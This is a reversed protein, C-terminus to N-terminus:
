KVGFYVTSFLRNFERFIRENFSIDIYRKHWELANDMYFVSYNSMDRMRYKSQPNLERYHGISLDLNVYNRYVMQLLSIANKIGEIQASYFLISLFELMYDKHLKISGEGLGKTDLYDVGDIPNYYYLFSINSVRYFSTYRASERFGVRGTINLNRIPRDGIVTISDNRISLIEEDTIGNSEIFIKRANAIGVALKESLGQVSGQLKGIFIERDIKPAAVLNQYTTEDIEGIDALVNINAKSIDFERIHRDIICEVPSIYLKKKWIDSM